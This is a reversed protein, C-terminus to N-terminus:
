KVERPKNEFRNWYQQLAKNFRGLTNTDVPIELVLFMCVLNLSVSRNYFNRDYSSM